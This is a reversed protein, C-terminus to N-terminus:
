PQREDPAVSWSQDSVTAVAMSAAANARKWIVNQGTSANRWMLDAYGDGDFDAVRAVTWNAASPHVAQRTASNGSLWVTNEGTSANQWAIDDKGDNNFDGVGAIKWALNTVGTM